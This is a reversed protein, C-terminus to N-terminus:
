AENIAIGKAALTERRRRRVSLDSETDSGAVAAQPNDVVTWGLVSSAVTDLGHAPVTIPGDEQSVFNGTAEGSSDLTVDGDLEFANDNIDMAVSGDPILAGPTGGLEVDFIRSRTAPRRK